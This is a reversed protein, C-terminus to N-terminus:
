DRIRVRCLLADVRDLLREYVPGLQDLGSVGYETERRWPALDPPTARAALGLARFSATTISEVSM